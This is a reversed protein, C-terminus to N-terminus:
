ILDLLGRVLGHCDRSRTFALRGARVKVSDWNASVPMPTPRVTPLLHRNSCAPNTPFEEIQAPGTHADEIPEDGAPAEHASDDIATWAAAFLAPHFEDHRTPLQANFRPPIANRIPTMNGRTFNSSRSLMAQALAVDALFRQFQPM